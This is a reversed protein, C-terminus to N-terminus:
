TPVPIGLMKCLREVAGDVVQSPGYDGSQWWELDHAISNCGGVEAAARSAIEATTLADQLRARAHGLAAVRLETAAMRTGDVSLVEGASLIRLLDDIKAIMDPAVRLVVQVDGEELKSYAYGYSGGSM